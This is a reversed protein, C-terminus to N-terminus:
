RAHKNINFGHLTNHTRQSPNLQTFNHAAMQVIHLWTHLTSQDSETVASYIIFLLFLLLLTPNYM